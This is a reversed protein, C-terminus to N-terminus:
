HMDTQRVTGRDTFLSSHNTCFNNSIASQYSHPALLFGYGLNRNECNEVEIGILGGLKPPRTGMWGLVQLVDLEYVSRSLNKSEVSLNHAINRAKM